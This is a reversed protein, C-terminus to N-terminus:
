TIGLEAKVHNVITLDGTVKGVDDSLKVVPIRRGDPLIVAVLKVVINLPRPGVDNTLNTGIGFASGIRGLCHDQIRLVLPVDLENSFIITKFAPNVHDQIYHAILRDTFWFPDGSDQRVGDFLRPWEGVFDRLFIDTTFTDSLATGLYGKYEESWVKMAILNAMRYGYLAAMVEVYEHAYTGVPILDLETAFHVNSTGVLVGGQNSRGASNILEELVVQHVHHSHRRRTGFDAFLAGGKRLELGKNRARNPWNSIAPQETVLFYLESILAMLPTEWYITRYWPGKIKVSLDGETQKIDVEAPNFQYIALWDLYWKGLYYSKARLYDIEKKSPLFKALWDVQTKLLEAFGPPFPTRGRNFFEYEVEVDPFRHYAVQGMTVKYLDTDLPSTIISRDVLKYSM